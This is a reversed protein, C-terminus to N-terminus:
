SARRSRSQHNTCTIIQYFMIGNETITYETNYGVTTKSILNLHQTLGLYFLFSQKMRIKSDQYLRSFSKREIVAHLIKLINTLDIQKQKFVTHNITSEYLQEVAFPIKEVLDTQIYNLRNM